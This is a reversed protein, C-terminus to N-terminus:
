LFGRKTMIEIYDSYARSNQKIVPEAEPWRGRIVERAYDVASWVNKIIEPEAKPWRGGIADRAYFFAAGPDKMIEPEAKPWRGGIVNVAYWAATKADELAAPEIKPWRGGIVDRAYTVAVGINKMIEPEAEPWRGGIVDRAYTVVVGINKMIEPEAEPWRGRIVERAYEVASWVNKIIEPEAEPWRGGIVDRAYDLAKSINKMITKEAQSFWQRLVPHQTRFYNLKDMDIYRNRSDTYEWPPADSDDDEGIFFQYKEGNRDRWVCLTGNDAYDHYKNGSETAATCWKTGRGLECSAEETKPIALQGLPGNYLVQTDPIVPFTGLEDADLGVAPNLIKDVLEATTHYDLRNIDRQDPSLRPKLKTYDALTQRVAPQDELRFQGRIYQKAIWQVYQQNRTPDMAELKALIMDAAQAPDSLDTSAAFFHDKKAAAILQPGMKNATVDRRYELITTFERLRM